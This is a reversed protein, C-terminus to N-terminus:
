NVSKYVYTRYNLPDIFWSHNMLDNVFFEIYLIIYVIAFINNGNIVDIYTDRIRRGTPTPFTADACFM